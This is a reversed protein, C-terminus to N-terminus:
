AFQTYYKMMECFLEDQTNVIVDAKASELEERTRFGWLVGACYIGANKATMIDTGTDGAYFAHRKDTGLMDLADYVIQPHPKIPVGERQGLVVDFTNPFFHDIVELTREHPKNSAVALSIGEKKISQLLELTGDYPHTKDISHRSYIDLYVDFVKKIEDDAACAPMARKVQNWAGDGVFYCFEIEEHTPYGFKELATNTAYALDGLTYLLTGDLDFIVSRKM